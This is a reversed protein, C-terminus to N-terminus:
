RDGLGAWSDLDSMEARVLIKGSELVAWFIREVAFRREFFREEVSAGNGDGALFSLGAGEASGGDGAAISVEKARGMGEGVGVESCSESTIRCVLRAGRTRAKATVNSFCVWGV